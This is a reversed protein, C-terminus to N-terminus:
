KSLCSEKDIDCISNERFAEFFLWSWNYRHSCKNHFEKERKQKQKITHFSETSKLFVDDNPKSDNHVNARKTNNQEPVVNKDASLFYAEDCYPM